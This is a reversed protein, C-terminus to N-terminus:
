LYYLYLVTVNTIQNTDKTTTLGVLVFDRHWSM